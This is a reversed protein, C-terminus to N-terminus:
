LHIIGDKVLVNQIESFNKFSIFQIRQDMCYEELSSSRKVFLLDVQDAVCRDTLGDGFYIIKYNQDKIERIIQRKCNGCVGLPQECQDLDHLFSLEIKDNKFEFHNAYILDSFEIDNQAFLIHIYNKFGGSIISFKLGNENILRYFEKFYPDLQICAQIFENFDNESIKIRAYQKLLAEKDGIKGTQLDDEIQYSVEDGFTQFLSDNVDQLSITGDFDSIIYLKQM